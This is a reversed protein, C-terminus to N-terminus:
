RPHGIGCHSLSKPRGHWNAPPSNHDRGRTRACTGDRGLRQSDGVVDLVRAPYIFSLAYTRGDRSSASLRTCSDSRGASMAFALNEGPGSCDRPSTHCPGLRRQPRYQPGATTGGRLRGPRDALPRVMWGGGMVMTQEWLTQLADHASRGPRFGFSCDRFDQEYVSELVMVVARQLVKDEFTPIGIPRTKRGDGKPIHVRRVPPAIYRGSKFRDLLAQLNAELDVAYDAATQGDLGVAGDKRTAAYAARLMNLDIYHALSTFVM